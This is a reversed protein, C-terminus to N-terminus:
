NRVKMGINLIDSQPSYRVRCLQPHTAIPFSTVPHLLVGSGLSAAMAELHLARLHWDQHIAVLGRARRERRVQM